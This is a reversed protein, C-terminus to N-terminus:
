GCLCRNRSSNAREEAVLKGCYGMLADRVFPYFCSCPNISIWSFNSLNVLDHKLLTHISMVRQLPVYLAVGSCELVMYNQFHVEKKNKKTLRGCCSDHISIASSHSYERFFMQNGAWKFCKLAICKNNLFAPAHLGKYKYCTYHLIHHCQPAGFDDWTIVWFSGMGKLKTWSISNFSKQSCERTKVQSANTHENLYGKLLSAVTFHMPVRMHLTIPASAQQSDLHTKFLPSFSHFYGRPWCKLRLRFVSQWPTLPCRHDWEGWLGLQLIDRGLANQAEYPCMQRVPTSWTATDLLFFPFINDRLCIM